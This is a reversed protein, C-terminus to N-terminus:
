VSVLRIPVQLVQIRSELEGQTMLYRDDEPRQMTYGLAALGRPFSRCKTSRIPIRCATLSWRTAARTIPSASSKTRTSSRAQKKELGATVREVGENFEDM